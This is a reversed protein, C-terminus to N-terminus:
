PQLLYQIDCKTFVQLAEDRTKGIFDAETFEIEDHFYVFLEEFDHKEDFRVMVRASAGWRFSTLLDNTHHIRVEAITM